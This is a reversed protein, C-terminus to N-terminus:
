RHATRDISCSPASSARSSCTKSRSWSRRSCTACNPRSTSAVDKRTRRRAPDLRVVGASVDVRDVTLALVESKVRWGTVFAFTLAARLYAPLHEVVAHFEHREFFGQRANNLTLMPVKPRNALEGGDVALVFARRVIALELNCSAAAASDALRHATYATLDAMAITSMRRDPNFDGLLHKDIRRQTHAVSKKGNMTMDNVVSQLGDALTKRGM